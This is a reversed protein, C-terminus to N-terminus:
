SEVGEGLAAGIIANIQQARETTDDTLEEEIKELAERQRAITQQAVRLEDQVENHIRYETRANKEWEAAQQQAEELAALLYRMDSFVEDTFGDLGLQIFIKNQEIFKEAEPIAKKIEEIREPTMSM